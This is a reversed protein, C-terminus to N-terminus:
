AEDTNFQEGDEEDAGTNDCVAWDYRFTLDVTRLNDDEYSLDSFSVTKIFPNKLTWVEIADGNANLISVVVSKIAGVAASKSMTERQSAGTKVNYGSAQVMKNTLAVANPSVPDVLQMNVDDWTLRGPFYYKNDMYDHTAESIAYSPVKFTKAWWVVSDGDLGTIEVQFRYNRKPEVNAENWFAM